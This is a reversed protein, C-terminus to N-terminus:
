EKTEEQDEEKLPPKGKGSFEVALSRATQRFRLRKGEDPIANSLRELVIEIKDATLSEAAEEVDKLTEELVISALPGIALNLEKELASLYDEGFVAGAKEPYRTGAGILGADRFRQMVKVLDLPALCMENSIDRLSKKGDIRALIDWDEKTLRITGSAKPLLHLVANLNLTQDQTIRNWEEIRQALLSLVESTEMEITTQDITQQPTFNYTGTEWGLMFLLAELGICSGFQAHTIRGEQLFVEGERGEARILLGGTRKKSCLFVLADAFQHTDKIEKNQESM